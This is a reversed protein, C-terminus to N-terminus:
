GGSSGGFPIQFRCGNVMGNLWLRSEGAFLVIRRATGCTPVPLNKALADVNEDATSRWACAHHPVASGM